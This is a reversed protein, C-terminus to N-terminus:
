RFVFEVFVRCTKKEQDINKKKHISLKLKISLTTWRQPDIEKKKNLLANTSDEDSDTM